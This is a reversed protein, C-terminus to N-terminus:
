AFPFTYRGHRRDIEDLTGGEPEVAFAREDGAAPAADPKRRRRRQGCGAGVHRKSRACPRFDFVRRVGDAGAALFGVRQHEVHGVNLGRPAGYRCGLRKLNKDVVGAHVARRM